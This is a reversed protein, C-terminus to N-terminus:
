KSAGKVEIAAAKMTYDITVKSGVKLDGKVKTAADKLIEGEGKGEARCDCEGQNGSGAGNGPLNESRRCLGAIVLSVRRL